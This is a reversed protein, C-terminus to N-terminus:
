FFFRKETEGGPYRYKLKDRERAEWEEPFREEIEGYTFSDLFGSKIEDLLPTRSRPGAIHAATQITRRLTSTWIHISPLDSTFTLYVRKM